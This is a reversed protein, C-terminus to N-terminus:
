PRPMHLASDARASKKPKKPIGVWFVRDYGTGGDANRGDDMDYVASQVPTSGNYHCPVVLDDTFFFLLSSPPGMPLPWPVSLWTGGSLAPLPCSIVGV